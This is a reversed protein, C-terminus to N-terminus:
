DRPRFAILIAEEGEFTEDHSGVSMDDTDDANATLIIFSLPGVDNFGSQYAEVVIRHNPPLKQLQAIMEAVTM